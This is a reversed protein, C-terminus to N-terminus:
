HYKHKLFACLYPSLEWPEHIHSYFGETLPHPRTWLSMETDWLLLGSSRVLSILTLSPKTWSVDDWPREGGIFDSSESYILFLETLSEPIRWNQWSAFQSFGLLPIGRLTRELQSVQHRWKPIQSSLWLSSQVLDPFPLPLLSGQTLLQLALLSCLSNWERATHGRALWKTAPGWWKGLAM